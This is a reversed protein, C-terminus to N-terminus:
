VTFLERMARAVTSNSIQDGEAACACVGQPLSPGGSWRHEDDSIVEFCVVDEATFVIDAVLVDAVTV